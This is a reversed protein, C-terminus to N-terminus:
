AKLLKKMGNNFGVWHGNEYALKMITAEEETLNRDIHDEIHDRVVLVMDKMYEIMQEADIKTM